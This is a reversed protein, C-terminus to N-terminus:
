KEPHDRRRAEHELLALAATHLEPDGAAIIDGGEIAPSGTWTTIVGGANEIIPILAAVDHTGLGSEVILDICGSALMAYAYCDGGYRTTKVASSIREFAARAGDTKFYDPHTTTLTAQGLQQCARTGITTETGDPNRRWSVRGDSWFRERTFPQDIVGLVPAGAHVLGILTGWIPFGTLFAATGDIPDLIWRTPADANVSPFEEGDIGHLPFRRAIENRMAREAARDAQTVPDFSGQAGSHHSHKAKNELALQDQGIRFYRISEAAALDALHHACALLDTSNNIVLGSKQSM